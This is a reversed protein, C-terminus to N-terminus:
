FVSTVTLQFSFDPVFKSSPFKYISVLGVEEVLPFDAVFRQGVSNVKMQRYTLTIQITLYRCRLSSHFLELVTLSASGRGLIQILVWTPSPRSPVYIYNYGSQRQVAVNTFTLVFFFKKLNFFSFLPLLLEEPQLMPARGTDKGQKASESSNLRHRLEQTM